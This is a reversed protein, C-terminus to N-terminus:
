EPLFFNDGLYTLRTLFEEDHWHDSLHFNHDTFFIKLEDKLEFFRTLVKGRSLWRVDTHLLLMVHNSGMARCLATFIHSNLPRATCAAIYALPTTVVGSHRGTMAKALVNQGCLDM